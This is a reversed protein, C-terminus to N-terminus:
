LAGSGDGPTDEGLPYIDNYPNHNFSNHAMPDPKLNWVGYHSTQKEIIYPNLVKNKGQISQIIVNVDFSWHVWTHAM